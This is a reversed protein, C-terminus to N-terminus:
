LLFYTFSFTIMSLLFMEATAHTKKWKEIIRGVIRDENWKLENCRIFEGSENVERKANENIIIKNIITRNCPSMNSLFVMGNRNTAVCAVMECQEVNAFMLVCVNANTRTAIIIEPMSIHTHELLQRTHINKNNNDVVVVVVVILQIKHAIYKMLLHVSNNM